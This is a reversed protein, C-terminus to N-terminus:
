RCALQMSFQAGWWWWAPMWLRGVVKCGGAKCALEMEAHGCRGTFLVGCCSATCGGDQPRGGQLGAGDRVAGCSGLLFACTAEWGGDQPRGDQLGAGDPLAAAAAGAHGQGQGDDAAGPVGTCAFLLCPPCMHTPCPAPLMGPKCTSPLASPRCSTTRRRVALVPDPKPTSFPPLPPCQERMAKAKDTQQLEQYAHLPSWHGTQADRLAASVLAAGVPGQAAAGPVGAFVHRLLVVCSKAGVQKLREQQRRAREAAIERKREEEDNFAFHEPGQPLLALCGSTHILLSGM